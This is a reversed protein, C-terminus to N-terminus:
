ILQSTIQHQLFKKIQFDNFQVELTYFRIAWTSVIINKSRRLSKCTATHCITLFDLTEAFFAVGSRTTFPLYGREWFWSNQSVHYFSPHRYQSLCMHVYPYAGICRTWTCLSYSNIHVAPLTTSHHLELWSGFKGQPSILLEGCVVSQVMKESFLHRGRQRLVM